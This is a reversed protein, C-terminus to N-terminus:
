VYRIFDAKDFLNPNWGYITITKRFGFKICLRKALNEANGFKHYPKAEGLITTYAVDKYEYNPKFKSNRGKYYFPRGGLDKDISVFYYKYAM